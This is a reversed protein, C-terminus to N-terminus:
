QGIITNVRSNNSARLARTVRFHLVSVLMVHVALSFALFSTLEARIPSRGLAVLAFSLIVVLAIRGALVLPRDALQRWAVRSFLVIFFYGHILFLAALYIGFPAEAKLTALPLYALTFAVLLVIKIWFAKRSLLSFNM